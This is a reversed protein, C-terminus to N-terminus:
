EVKEIIDAALAQGYTFRVLMPASTGIKVMAHVGGLVFAVDTVMAEIRTMVGNGAGSPQYKKTEAQQKSTM